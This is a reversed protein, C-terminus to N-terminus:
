GAFAPLILSFTTGKGPTSSVDIKGGNEKVLRNCIALGLGVGEEKTTFFPQFIQGQLDKPIGVGTDQVDIQVYTQYQQLLGGPKRNRKGASIARRRAKVSLQGGNPMADLANLFLNILVQEIQNKDVFVPAVVSPIEVNFSVKHWKFKAELL